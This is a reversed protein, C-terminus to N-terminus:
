LRKQPCRAHARQCQTPRGGIDHGPKCGVTSRSATAQPRGSQTPARLLGPRTTDLSAGSRRGARQNAWPGGSQNQLANSIVVSSSFSAVQRFGDSWGVTRAIGGRLSCCLVCRPVAMAMEGRGRSLGPANFFLLFVPYLHRLGPHAHRFWWVAYAPTGRSSLRLSVTSRAEPLPVQLCQGRGPLIHTGM